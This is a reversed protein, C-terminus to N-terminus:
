IDKLFPPPFKASVRQDQHKGSLEPLFVHCFESKKASGGGKKGRERGGHHRPVEDGSGGMGALAEKTCGSFGSIGVALIAVVDGPAFPALPAAPVAREIIGAQVIGGEDGSFAAEILLTLRQKTRRCHPSIEEGAGSPM